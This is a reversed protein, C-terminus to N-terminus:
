CLLVYQVIPLQQLSLSVFVLGPDEYSKMFDKAVELRVKLDDILGASDSKKGDVKQLKVLEEEIGTILANQEIEFDQRRKQKLRTVLDAPFLGGM